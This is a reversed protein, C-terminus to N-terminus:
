GTGSPILRDFRMCPVHSGAVIRSVRDAEIAHNCNGNGGGREQMGHCAGAVCVRVCVRVCWPCVCVMKSADRSQSRSALRAHKGALSILESMMTCAVHKRHGEV